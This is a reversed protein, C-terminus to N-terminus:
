YSQITREFSVELNTNSNLSNFSIIVSMEPSFLVNSKLVM